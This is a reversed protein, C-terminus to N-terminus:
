PRMEERAFEVAREYQARGASLEALQHFAYWDRPFTRVRLELTDRFDEWRNERQYYRSAIVLKERESVRGRRAFGQTTYQRATKLDAVNGYTAAM